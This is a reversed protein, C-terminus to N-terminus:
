PLRGKEGAAGADAPPGGPSAGGRASVQHVPPPPECTRCGPDFRATLGKVGLLRPRPPGDSRPCVTPYDLCSLWITSRGAPLPVELKGPGGSTSWEARYGCSTLIEVRRLPHEPLSPGPRFVATLTLRGPCGAIMAIETRGRSIWFDAPQDPGELGLPNTLWTPLGWARSHTQWLQLAQGSWTLSADGPDVAAFPPAPETVILLGSKPPDFDFLAQYRSLRKVDADIVSLQSLGVFHRRAFYALWSRHIPNCHAVLVSRGASQELRDQMHLLDSGALAPASSRTTGLRVGSTWVMDVTGAAALSFVVGLPVGTAVRWAPCGRGQGPVPVLRAALAVGLALLPSVTLLLKQLQYPHCGDRLIVALPLVAIGLLGAVLPFSQPGRGEPDPATRLHGAAAALGLYAAITAGVTYARICTKIVGRGATALDGLWVRSWGEMTQAWPYIQGLAALDLRGLVTFLRPICFYPNLVPASLVVVGYLGARRWDPRRRLLAHGAALGTLGVMVPAFETYVSLGLSFLLAARVLSGATPRRGVDELVVPFALLVPLGLAQSLFCDLHITTLGPMLGAAAATALAAAHGVGLRRALACVALVSLPASLLITPEFLAKASTHSSFAWFGQLIAQGIRDDKGTAVWALWPQSPVSEAPTDFPLHAFYEASVTYNYQDTWARGVYARAGHAWLGLSQVCFVGAAVGFAGWPVASLSSRLQGRLVLWATALLGTLWVGAATRALPLGLYVLNQLPLVIGAMGLLPVLCWGTLDLPKRGGLLWQLPIGVLALSLAIVVLCTLTL